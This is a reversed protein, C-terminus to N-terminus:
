LRFPPEDFEGWDTASKRMTADRSSSSLLLHGQLWTSDGVLLNASDGVLLNASDGVL